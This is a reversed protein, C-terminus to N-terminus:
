YDEASFKKARYGIKIPNNPERSDSKKFEKYIKSILGRECTPNSFTMERDTPQQKIRIVTDKAKCFKTAKYFGLQGKKM